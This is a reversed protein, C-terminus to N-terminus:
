LVATAAVELRNISGGYTYWLNIIPSDRNVRINATAPLIQIYYGNAALEDSISSEGSEQYLETKQSESLEIGIEIVGNNLARSIPDIMWSRVMALGKDTYPVRVATKIGGYMSVQLVNRFWIANIYPDIFRYDGFMSGDYLHTFEQARTAYRGYYNIRRNRLTTAEVATTVTAALGSQAKFAFNIAGNQRNWDISAATGMVFAAYQASGITVEIGSYGLETLQDAITNTATQNRLNKDNTWACYLYEELQGNSWEALALIEADDAEYITSFTVWNESQGIVSEMNETETLEDSGISLTAGSSSSLRLLLAIDQNDAAVAINLRADDRINLTVLTSEDAIPEFYGIASDEGVNGPSVIFGKSVTSYSVTALPEFERLATQIIVAVDSYTTVTSFNLGTVQRETGNITVKFSGDTIGKFNDISAIVASGMVFAAISESVRRAFSLKNPKRFSNDYGLFYNRALIYEQSSTGFYDGVSALNPFELVQPFPMLPNKTLFLGTMELENNGATLVRPIVNVIQSAPIAM